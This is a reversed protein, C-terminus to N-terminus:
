TYVSKFIKHLIHMYKFMVHPQTCYSIGTIGAVWSTSIPPNLNLALGPL